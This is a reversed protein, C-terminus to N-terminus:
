FIDTPSHGINTFMLVRGHYELEGKLYMIPKYKGMMKFNHVTMHSTRALSIYAVTKLLRKTHNM